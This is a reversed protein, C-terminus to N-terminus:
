RPMEREILEYVAVACGECMSRSKSALTKGGKLKHKSPADPNYSRLFIGVVGAPDETGCRACRRESVAPRPAFDAFTRGNTTTSDSM